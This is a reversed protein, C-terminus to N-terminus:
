FAHGFPHLLLIDALLAGHLSWISRFAINPCLTSESLVFLRRCANTITSIYIYVHLNMYSPVALRIISPVKLITCELCQWIRDHSVVVTSCSEILKWPCWGENQSFRFSKRTNAKLKSKCGHKVFVPKNYGCKKYICIHWASGRYAKRWTGTYQSIGYCWPSCTVLDLCCICNQRNKLRVDIM